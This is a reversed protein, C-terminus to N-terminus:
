AQEQDIISQAVRKGSLLAGHVTAHYDFITHEGAFFLVGTDLDGFGDFDDPVIDVGTYSYAGQSWPDKSWRTMQFKEPDPTSTGFMDRMVSMVDEQAEADTMAEAKIAYNGFCLPLLVNADSFTRYNVAYPWRGKEATLAGFYQVDEPWFAEAFQMLAKTVNGMPLRSITSQVDRNLPPDFTITGAKLVGLPVTCIVYDATLEGQDTEVMADSDNYRIRSVAINFRVDLGISLPSLIKDYGTLLIVDDGDFADDEDFFLASLNEIPGGTDFETYATMAWRILPDSMARSDIDQFAESLPVDREVTEDVKHLLRSYDQDLRGLAQDDFVGGQLDYVSLSDDDTRFTKASVEEALRTVPNGEPGHIWGAGVEFPVDFSWDTYLRGGTRDRAELVVVDFGNDQLDRAAALGAVGAGIVIVSPRDQQASGQSMKLASIAGVASLGKLIDRRKM